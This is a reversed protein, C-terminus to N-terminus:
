CLGGASSMGTAHRVVALRVSHGSLWPMDAWAVL